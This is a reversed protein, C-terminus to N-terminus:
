AVQRIEDRLGSLDQITVQKEDSKGQEGALCLSVDLRQDQNTRIAPEMM